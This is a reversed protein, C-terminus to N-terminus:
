APEVRGLAMDEKIETDYHEVLKDLAVVLKRTEASQSTSEKFLKRYRTWAAVSVNELIVASLLEREYLTMISMARHYDRNARFAAQAGATLGSSPGYRSQGTPPAAGAWVTGPLGGLRAADASLRLRDAAHVHLESFSSADGHRRRSWRLPDFARYGRVSRATHAANPRDDDPDRWETQMLATPGHTMLLRIAAPVLEDPVTARRGRAMM